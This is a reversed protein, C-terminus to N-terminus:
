PCFNGGTGALRVAFISSIARAALARDSLWVAWGSTLTLSGTASRAGPLGAADVIRDRSRMAGAHSATANRPPAKAHPSTSRSPGPAPAANFTPADIADTPVPTDGHIM